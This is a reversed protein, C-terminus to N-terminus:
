AVSPSKCYIITQGKRQKLIEIVKINKNNEDRSKINYEFVNIAVTNFDSNFFVYEKKLSALGRVEDINPGIMYFQRSVTLLKSLAVNLSVVREDFRKVNNKIECSLKYFEDIVFLDIDAIDDKENVREQTLIYIVKDNIAGQANHHFIQYKNSFKKSIRRRTEDILAITPVVLVIKKFKDSALICDVIASKGMSTPASLVVNCDHMLLDYIKFQMSHFVFDNQNPPTYLGAVFEDEINFEDFFESQLYPFLGAKRVMNKLFVSYNSFCERSNLARIVLERGMSEQVPNSLLENTLKLFKFQNFSEDKKLSEIASAFNYDM